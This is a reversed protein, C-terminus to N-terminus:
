VERSCMSHEVGFWKKAGRQVVCQMVSKATCRGQGGFQIKGRVTVEGEGENTPPTLTLGRVTGVAVETQGDAGDVAFSYPVLSTTLEQASSAIYWYTFQQAVGRTRVTHPWTLGHVGSVGDRGVTTDVVM